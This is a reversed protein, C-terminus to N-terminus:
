VAGVKPRQRPPMLGRRVGSSGIGRNGPGTDPALLTRAANGKTSGREEVSEAAGPVMRLMTRDAKNARKKPVIPGDSERSVHMDSTRSSAKEFRGEGGPPPTELTERNGHLSDGRMGLTESEAADLPSKRTADSM